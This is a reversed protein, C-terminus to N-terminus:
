QGILRLAGQNLQNAQGLIAVGAQQMTQFKAMEASEYAFDADRIRSEAAQLNETYTTLNRLTSELRNQVAGYNSRYSNVTGLATDLLDLAGRADASTLLNAPLNLTASRLDGVIVTILDNATNEAGVQVDINASGDTLQVGNFNTVAAIRDVEATLQQYEDDIYARETNALTDSASQVALERMRKIINAVENTAGEAVQIVSIGDNTNRTAQRLSRQTADLNEAVALGAADDGAKNIRLGSSIRNFTSQLHGTTRELHNMSYTSTMNTNVTLAM